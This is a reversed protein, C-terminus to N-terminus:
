SNQAANDLAPAEKPKAKLAAEQALEVVKSLIEYASDYLEGFPAGTPLHFTYVNDGKKVEFSVNTKIDM